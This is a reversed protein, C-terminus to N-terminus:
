QLKKQHISVRHGQHLPHHRLHECNHSMEPHPRQSYLIRHESNLISKERRSFYECKSKLIEFLKGYELSTSTDFVGCCHQSPSFCNCRPKAESYKSEQGHFMLELGGRGLSTGRIMGNVLVGQDGLYFKPFVFLCFSFSPSPSLIILLCHSLLYFIIRFHFKGFFINFIWSSRWGM